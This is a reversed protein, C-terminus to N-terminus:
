LLIQLDLQHKPKCKKICKAYFADPDSKGLSDKLCQKYCSKDSIPPKPALPVAVGNIQVESDDTSTLLDVILNALRGERLEKELMDHLDKDDDKEYNKM